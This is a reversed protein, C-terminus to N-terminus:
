SDFSLKRRQRSKRGLGVDTQSDVRVVLDYVVDQVVQKEPVPIVKRSWRIAGLNTDFVIRGTNGIGEDCRCAAFLKSAEGRGQIPNSSRTRATIKM